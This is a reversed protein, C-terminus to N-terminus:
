ITPTTMHAFNALLEIKEILSTIMIEIKYPNSWFFWKKPPHDENLNLLKPSASSIVRCNKVMTAFPNFSFALFNQPNPVRNTSTVPSFSTPSPLPPPPLPAKQGRIRFLTLSLTQIVVYTRKSLGTLYLRRSKIFFILWSLLCEKYPMNQM